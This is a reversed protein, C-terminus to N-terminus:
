NSNMLGDTTDEPIKAGPFAWPYVPWPFWPNNGPKRLAAEEAFFRSPIPIRCNGRGAGAAEWSDKPCKKPAIFWSKFGLVLSCPSSCLQICSNPSPQPEIPMKIQYLFMLCSHFIGGPHPDPGCQHSQPAHLLSLVRSFELFWTISKTSWASRSAKAVGAANIGM